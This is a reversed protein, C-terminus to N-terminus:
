DELVRQDSKWLTGFGSQGDSNNSVQHIAHM